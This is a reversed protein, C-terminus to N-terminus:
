LLGGKVISLRIRLLLVGGRKEREMLTQKERGKRMKIGGGYKDFFTEQSSCSSTDTCRNKTGGGREVGKKQGFFPKRKEEETKGLTPYILERCPRGGREPKSEDDDKRDTRRACKPEGIL